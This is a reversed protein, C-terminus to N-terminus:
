SIELQQDFFILWKLTAEPGSGGPIIRANDAVEEQNRNVAIPVINPVELVEMDNGKYIEGLHGIQTFFADGFYVIPYEEEEPIGREKLADKIAFGKNLKANIVDITTRGGPKIQYKNLLDGRNQESLLKRLRQVAKEREKQPLPSLTLKVKGQEEVKPERFSFAPYEKKLKDSQLQYNEWYAVGIKELDETLFQADERPIQFQKAYADYKAEDLNGKDDFYLKLGGDNSYINILPMIDLRNINMLIEKLPDIFRQLIEEEKTGSVFIFPVGKKLLNLLPAEAISHNLSFRKIKEIPTPFFTDDFDSTIPLLKNQVMFKGKLLNRITSPVGIRRYTIVPVTLSNGGPM